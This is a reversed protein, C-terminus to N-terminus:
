APLTLYHLSFLREADTWVHTPDFGARKALQRFEEISYKYSNETHVTEGKTFSISTGDLRVTQSSLSEIHMEIRGLRENYFAAHRFKPLDFDAGLERNMRELVNLNFDATVGQSDNYAADLSSKDKKLDVGLLMSGGHGVRRATTELLEQAQEPTLNGITSGPFFVMRGGFPFKRTEPLPFPRTYDACVAIVELDCYTEALATASEILHNRSVDVPIYTGCGGLADLLIRIKRSSGSGYEIILFQQGVLEAIQGAHEKLISVEARTLYYEDLKCITEFLESGRHDYFFKPAITKQTRRLGDLAEERFDEVQPYCDQFSIGGLQETHM